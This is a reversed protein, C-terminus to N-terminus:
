VQAAAARKRPASGGRDDARCYHEREGRNDEEEADAEAEEEVEPGPVQRVGIRESVRLELDGREASPPWQFVLVARDGRKNSRNQHHPHERDGSHPYRRDTEIIQRKTCAGADRVDPTE